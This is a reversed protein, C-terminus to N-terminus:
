VTHFIKGKTGLFKMRLDSSFSEKNEIHTGNVLGRIFVCSVTLNVVDDWFSLVNTEVVSNSKYVIYCYKVLVEENVPKTLGMNVTIDDTLQYEM